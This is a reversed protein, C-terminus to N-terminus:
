LESPRACFEPTLHRWVLTQVDGDRRAAAFMHTPKIRGSLIEEEDRAHVRDIFGRDWEREVKFHPGFGRDIFPDIVNGYAFFLDFAFRQSMLPLIEQARIGEFGEVSCDWNGYTDEQRRLQCNYRYERPFEKWFEEVVALAEPWRMHGNRGIM